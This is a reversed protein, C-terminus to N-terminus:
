PANMGDTQEDGCDGTTVQKIFKRCESSSDSACEALMWEPEADSNVLLEVARRRCVECPTEFYAVLGLESRDAEENVELL